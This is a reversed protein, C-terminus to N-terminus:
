NLLWILIIIFSEIGAIYILIKKISLYVNMISSIKKKQKNM